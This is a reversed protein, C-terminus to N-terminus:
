EHTDEADVRYGTATITIRAFAHALATDEPPPDLPAAPTPHRPSDRGPEAPVPEALPEANTLLGPCDHPWDLAEISLHERYTFAHPAYMAVPAGDYQAYDRNRIRVVSFGPEADIASLENASFRPGTTLDPELGLPSLKRRLQETSGSLNELYTISRPSAASYFQRFGTSHEVAPAIGLQELKEHSQSALLLSLGESRATEMFGDFNRGAINQFEDIIVYGPKKPEGPSRGREENYYRCASFFCEVAIAGVIRAVAEQPRSRLSFYLVEDDQFARYMRISETWLRQDSAKTTVNLAPIRALDKIAMRLSVSHERQSAEWHKTKGPDNTGPLFASYERCSEAEPHEEMLLDFAERNFAAFHEKGYEGGFELNLGLRIHDRMEEPSLGLTRLNLIPNFGYTSRTPHNTFFRFARGARQAAQRVANFFYREGKLDIILIPGRYALTPHARHSPPDCAILQLALPLLTRSTKGAESAGSVYGHAWLKDIPLFVLARRTAEFGLFLQRRDVLNPSTRMATTIARWPLEAEVPATDPLHNRLSDEFHELHRATLAAGQLQQALAGLTNGINQLSRFVNM